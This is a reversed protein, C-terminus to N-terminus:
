HEFVAIGVAYYLKISVLHVDSGAIQRGDHLVKGSMRRFFQNIGAADLFDLHLEASRVFAYLFDSKLQIEWVM